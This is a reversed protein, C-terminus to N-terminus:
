ALALAANVAGSTSSFVALVSDRATDVVRGEASEVETRFVSRAADLAELAARDDAAMLRAYGAADAALIAALRHRMSCENM